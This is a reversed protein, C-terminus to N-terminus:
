VLREGILGEGVFLGGVGKDESKRISSTVGYKVSSCGVCFSSSLVGGSNFAFSTLLSISTIALWVLSFTAFV